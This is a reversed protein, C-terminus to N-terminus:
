FIYLSDDAYRGVLESIGCLDCRVARYKRYQWFDPRANNRQEEQALDVVTDYDDDYPTTPVIEFIDAETQTQISKAVNETNGSWSFYVVLSKSETETPTSSDNPNNSEETPVSSDNLNNREEDSASSQDSSQQPASFSEENTTSSSCATFSLLLTLVMFISVLKKM